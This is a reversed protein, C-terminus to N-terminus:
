MNSSILNSYVENWNVFIAKDANKGGYWHRNFVQTFEVMVDYLEPKNERIENLYQKNTKAKNIRIINLDNFRILLSIYLFRLGQTYDGSNYYDFAKKYVEDSDKLINLLLADEEQRVKRSRTLKKAAYYIILGIIAIILVIAIIQLVFMVEKSVKSGSFVIELKNTINFKEWISKLFEIFRDHLIELFSRSKTKEGFENSALIRSLMEKVEEENEPSFAKAKVSYLSTISLVVLIWKNIKKYVRGVLLKGM